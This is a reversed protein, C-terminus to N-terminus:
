PHRSSVGTAKFGRKSAPRCTQRCYSAAYEARFGACKWVPKRWYFVM